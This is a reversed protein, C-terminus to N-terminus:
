NYPSDVFCVYQGYALSIGKNRARSQGGNEQSYLLIQPYQKMYEKVIEESNDSSGYNIIIIEYDDICLDQKM